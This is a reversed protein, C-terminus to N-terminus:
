RSLQSIPVQDRALAYLYEQAYGAYSGFTERAFRRIEGYGAPTLREGGVGYQRSILRHIWVDVPFVELRGFAFLLVCDAVKPGVGPLRQLERRADDTPLARIREEWEPDRAVARATGALYAARYGLRCSRLPVEGRSALATPDPFAYREGGRAPEGFRECIEEICGRIRPINTNTACIFSALCEWAPQRVIRLGRFRRVADAMLPDTSLRDYVAELDLDLDFYERARHPDMGRLRLCDGDQRLRVVRGDVVGEFWRDSVEQWRFVQGCDLTEELDFPIGALDMRITQMEEPINIM